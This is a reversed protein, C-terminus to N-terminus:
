QNRREPGRVFGNEQIKKIIRNREEPLAFMNLESSTKGPVQEKNYGVFNAFADNIEVFKGTSAETICKMIPSKYFLNSFM